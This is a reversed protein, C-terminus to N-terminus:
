VFLFIKLLTHVQYGRFATQIRIVAIEEKSKGSFRSVTSITVVEPVAQAVSEAAVNVVVPVDKTEEDREDTLKVEEVEQNPPLLPPVNPEPATETPDLDLAM